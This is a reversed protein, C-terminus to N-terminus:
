HAASATGPGANDIDGEEGHPSVAHGHDAALLTPHSSRRGLRLWMLTLHLFFFINSILIFIWAITTAVAYPYARTAASQFPVQWDEQGIGQQLGGFLAILAITVIGYTSFLFHISILRRSLWERRTVRPVIFYVAGFMVFTFFGYLALIEFGYGSLSFQTLPLTSDPLNLVVAAFALVLLGTLGATTFRLSPSASMTEPNGLMTRLLNLAAALAPVFLLATAAAGVYPLFYPIPAGTLKQMGAWPAIIALSWFGLKALSYSHVARGTVKPALYYAAGLAVPTFFLFILASKYWANIGAGMVPHGPLCHLLTNVTLFVWPFWVIAALIYWQSIYVHGEPRVRFQIFSWIVIAFYTVLMVPWTFAPFEMWPMGTGNGSLIGILGASVVLNWVHGAVLILGAATCEKRSLRAMMWIIVAFAAQFGWGYIFANIHAPFVRGYTLWGCGSLFGPSHVKASAIIGLVISVALWAAGSTMFFMVPHRLSRDIGARLLADQDTTTPSASSM